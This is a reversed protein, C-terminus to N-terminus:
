RCISMKSMMAAKSKCLMITSAGWARLSICLKPGGGRVKSVAGGQPSRVHPFDRWLCPCEVVAEEIFEELIYVMHETYMKARTYVSCSVPEDMARYVLSKWTYERSKLIAISIKEIIKQERFRDQPVAQTYTSTLRKEPDLSDDNYRVSTCSVCLRKTLVKEAYIVSCKGYRVEDASWHSYKHVVDRCESQNSPGM